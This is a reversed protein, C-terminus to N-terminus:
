SRGRGRKKPKEEEQQQDPDPEAAGDVGFHAKAKQWLEFQEVFKKEKDSPNAGIVALRRSIEDRKDKNWEPGPPYDKLLQFYLRQTETEGAPAAPPADKADKASSKAKGAKGVPKGDVADGTAEGENAEQEKKQAALKRAEEDRADQIAKQEKLRLEAEIEDLMQQTLRQMVEYEAVDAFPVFVYNAKGGAYWLRIGAGREKVTADVFRLGDVREVFRGDKVVGLLKNGNRLRLSVRVHSVVQKGLVIQERMTQARRDVRQEEASPAPAPAPTPAPAPAPRQALLNAALLLSGAVLLSTRHM